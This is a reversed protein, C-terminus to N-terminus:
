QSVNNNSNLSIRCHGHKIMEEKDTGSAIVEQKIIFVKNDCLFFELEWMGNYKQIEASSFQNICTWELGHNGSNTLNWNVASNLDLTSSPMNSKM